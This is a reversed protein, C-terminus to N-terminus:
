KKNEQIENEGSLNSQRYVSLLIKSNRTEFQIHRDSPSFRIDNRNDGHGLMKTASSNIFEIVEEESLDDIDRNLGAFRTLQGLLQRYKVSSQPSLNGNQRLYSEILPM